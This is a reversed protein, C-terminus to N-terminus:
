GFLIAPTFSSGTEPFDAVGNLVLDTLTLIYVLAVKVNYGRM